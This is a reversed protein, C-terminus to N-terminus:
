EGGAFRARPPVAAAAAASGRSSSTRWWLARPSSLCRSVRVGAESGGRRAIWAGASGMAVVGATPAAHRRAGPGPRASRSRAAAGAEARGRRGRRTMRPRQTASSLLSPGAGRGAAAGACSAGGTTGPKRAGGRVSGSRAGAEVGGGTGSAPAPAM